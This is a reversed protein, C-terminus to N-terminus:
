RALGGASRCGTEVLQRAALEPSGSAAMAGPRASDPRGGGGLSSWPWQKSERPLMALCNKSALTYLRLDHVYGEGRDTAQIAPDIKVALFDADNGASVFEMALGYRLFSDDPNELLMEELQQKRSNSSM